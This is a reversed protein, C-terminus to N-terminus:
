EKGKRDLQEYVPQWRQQSRYITSGKELISARMTLGDGFASIFQKIYTAKFRRLNDTFAEGDCGELLLALQQQAVARMQPRTHVLDQEAAQAVTDLAANRALDMVEWLAEQSANIPYRILQLRQEEEEDRLLAVEGVKLRFLGEEHKKSCAYLKQVRTQTNRARFKGGFPGYEWHWGPIEYTITITRAPQPHEDQELETDVKRVEITGSCGPYACPEHRTLSRLYALYEKKARDRLEHGWSSIHEDAERSREGFAAEVEGRPALGAAVIANAYRQQSETLEGPKRRQSKLGLALRVLKRGDRTMQVALIPDGFVKGGDRDENTYRCEILNRQELAGFTEGTKKDHLRSLALKKKLPTHLGNLTAYDMWRWQAATRASGGSRFWAREHAEQQQDVEYIATLYAQERRTLMDWADTM